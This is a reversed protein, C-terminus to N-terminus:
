VFHKQTQTQIGHIFFVLYCCYDGDDGDDDCYRQPQFIHSSTKDM